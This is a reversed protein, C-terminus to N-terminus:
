GTRRIGVGRRRELADRGVAVTRDADLHALGQRDQLDGTVQGGFATLALAKDLADLDRELRDRQADLRARVDPRDGDATLDSRGPSLTIVTSISPFTPCTSIAPPTTASPFSESAM